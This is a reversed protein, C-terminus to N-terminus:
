EKLEGHLFAIKVDLHHVEWGKSAALAIVLRITEVRAVPAFVDDYDIRHRQVYGKAVLCAKYKSISGDANRKIKFVWKLGISKFGKPLDVLIWTKNKEISFLEDKCADVWVQMEKAENYDWPENNIVMLLRECEVEALLVYDDLYSPKTSVRSSRRVHSSLQEETEEDDEDEDRTEEGDIDTESTSPVVVHDGNSQLPVLEVEFSGSEDADSAEPTDWSWQKEEDFLVDRSVIIRKTSPDFLRYAKTGPEVGLHVLVRSRDDLKKRGVDETRAYCVCGFVKLHEINPRKLHLAAYPTQSVLSRTSIKNTLYTAHRVEEGGFINPVNMHKLLSRTMELLTRNRREVVKNQQPTYLATLHRNIGNKDCYEKFEQSVFEGGRDTQFTKVAAKTEQEVLKRFMKFKNFAESKRELLVTWMCRSFDDILVFVYRKRGPTHPTIPWM